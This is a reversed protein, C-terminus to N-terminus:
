AGVGAPSSCNTNLKRLATGRGSPDNFYPFLERQHFSVNQGKPGILHEGYGTTWHALGVAALDNDDLMVSEARNWTVHPPEYPSNQTLVIVWVGSSNDAPSINDQDYSVARKFAINFINRDVILDNSGPFPRSQVFRL